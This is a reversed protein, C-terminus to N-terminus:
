RAKEIFVIKDYAHVAGVLPDPTPPVFGAEVFYRHHIGDVLEKVLAITTLGVGPPGGGYSPMYSTQLDEIVYFGGPVVHPFLAAFTTRTDWPLHSGDDVVLDIPGIENATRQLFGVDSQSGVLVRIRREDIEDQVAVDIGYVTSRPFWTKWMRLSEGAWSADGGGGIGIELITLPRHRRSALHRDYLEFYGHMRKSTRFCRGVRNLDDGVLPLRLVASRLLFPVRRASPSLRKAREKVRADLKM